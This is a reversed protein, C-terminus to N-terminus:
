ISIKGSIISLLFLWSFVYNSKFKKLCDLPDTINITRVQWTAHIATLSIGCYFLWHLNVMYGAILMLIITISFVISLFLHINDQFKLALSKIGVKVDDNIDQLGYITDYGLTWFIGATYLVVAPAQLEGATAIWGLLAGWNFTFGLILQPWYTFRKTLPYIIVLIISALGFYITLKNFQLLIILGLGCLSIMFISAHKVTILKAAIPRDSTRAVNADLKRDFIDNLCCGAARMIIAGFLFLLFLHLLETINHWNKITLAVSWWCPFLLLWAGTPRDIRSLRIYPQIHSPLLKEVWDRRPIDSAHNNKNKM